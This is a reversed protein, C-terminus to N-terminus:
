ATLTSSVMAKGALEPHARILQLQAEHGAERVVEVLARKLQALNRFPRRAAAREVIWPSHEYTGALLRGFEDPSAANLQDLTVTVGIGV